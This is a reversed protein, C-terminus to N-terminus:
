LWKEIKKLNAIVIQQAEPKTEMKDLRYSQLVYQLLAAKCKITLKNRIMNYDHAIVKQQAKELRPDPGICLEIETNWATDKELGHESVEM